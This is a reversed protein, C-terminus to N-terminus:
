YACVREGEKARFRRKLHGCRLKPTNGDYYPSSRLVDFSFAPQHLAMASPKPGPPQRQCSQAM